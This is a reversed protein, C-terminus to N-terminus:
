ELGFFELTTKGEQLAAMMHVEREVRVRSAEVVDQLRSSPIVVIGDVDAVVIDGSRILCNGLTISDKPPVRPSVKTAALICLGRAFVPFRLKVIAQRDRVAGNVVLGAIRRSQAAVTMVEGWHGAGLYGGADVVLVDGPAAAPIARHIAANDGPSCHVIYAPGVLVSASDLPELRVTFAGRQGAAEYVTASGYSSLETILDPTLNMMGRM